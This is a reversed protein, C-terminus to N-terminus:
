ETTKPPIRGANQKLWAVLESCFQEKVITTEGKGQVYYAIKIGHADFTQTPPLEAASARRAVALCFIAVIIRLLGIGPM